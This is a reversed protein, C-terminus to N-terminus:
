SKQGNLFFFGWGFRIPYLNLSFVYFGYILTRGLGILEFNVVFLLILKKNGILDTAQRIFEKRVSM